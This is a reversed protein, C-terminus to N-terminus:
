RDEGIEVLVEPGRTADAQLDLRCRPRSYRANPLPRGRGSTEVRRDRGEM